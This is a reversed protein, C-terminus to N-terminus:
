SINIEIFSDVFITFNTYDDCESENVQKILSLNVGLSKYSKKKRPSVNLYLTVM